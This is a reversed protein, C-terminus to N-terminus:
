QVDPSFFDRSDLKDAPKSEGRKKFFINVAGKQVPLVAVRLGDVDSFSEMRLDEPKYGRVGAPPNPRNSNSSM